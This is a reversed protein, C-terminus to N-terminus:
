KAKILDLYAEQQMMYPKILTRQRGSVLVGSIQNYRESLGVMQKQIFKLADTKDRKTKILFYGRESNSGVPYGKRTLTEKIERIQRDNYFLSIAEKIEARTADGKKLLALVEKESETLRPHPM